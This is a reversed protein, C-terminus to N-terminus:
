FLKCWFTGMHWTESSLVQSAAWECRNWIHEGLLYRFDQLRLRLIEKECCVVLNKM